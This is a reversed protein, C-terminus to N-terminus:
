HDGVESKYVFYVNGFVDKGKFFTNKCQYVESKREHGHIGYDYKCASGKGQEMQKQLARAIRKPTTKEIERVNVSVQNGAKSVYGDLDAEHFYKQAADSLFSRVTDADPKALVLTELKAGEFAGDCIREVSAPLSVKVLSGCNAFARKGIIRVGEQIEVFTIRDNNEFAGDYIEVISGPIVISRKKGTYGTLVENEVAFGEKEYLQEMAMGNIATLDSDAVSIGPVALAGALDGAPIGGDDVDGVSLEASINYGCEPCFSGGSFKTGCEACFYERNANEEEHKKIHFGCKVCFKATDSVNAKCKPCSKMSIVM